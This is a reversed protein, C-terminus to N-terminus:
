QTRSFYKQQIEMLEAVRSEKVNAPIEDKIHNYSYTDEEDHIPSYASVIL